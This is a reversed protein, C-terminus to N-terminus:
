CFTRSVQLVWYCLRELSTLSNSLQRSQAHWPWAQVLTLDRCFVTTLNLLVGGIAILNHGCAHGIGPLADMQYRFSILDRVTPCRQPFWRLTLGLQEAVREMRSHRAGHLKLTTINRLKLVMSPCLTQLSMTPVALCLLHKDHHVPM